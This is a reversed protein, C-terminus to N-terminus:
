GVVGPGARLMGPVLEVAMFTASADAKGAPEWSLGQESAPVFGFRAFYDRSGRVFVAAYGLARARHLAAEVLRTGFGKRRHAPVIGLTVLALVRLARNDDVATPALFIHGVIPWTDVATEAPSVHAALSITPVGSARLAKVFRAEDPRGFASELAATVEAEHEPWDEWVGDADLKAAGVRFDNFWADDQLSVMLRPHAKLLECLESAAADTTLFCRGLYMGDRAITGYKVYYCDQRLSLGYLFEVLFAADTAVICLKKQSYPADPAVPGRRDRFRGPPVLRFRPDASPDSM